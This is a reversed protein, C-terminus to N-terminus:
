NRTIIMRHTATQSGNSIKYFYIGAPLSNSEFIIKSIGAQVSYKETRVLRGVINYINLEIKANNPVSVEIETKKTFPNPINQSVNFKFAETKAIGTPTTDLIIISLDHKEPLVAPGLFYQGFLRYYITIKHISTDSMIPTGFLRLCGLQGGNFHDKPNLEYTFNKPKNGISDVIVSDITADISQYKVNFPIKVTITQEYPKGVYAVPLNKPCFLTDTCDLSYSCQSKVASSIFYFALILLYIKKM